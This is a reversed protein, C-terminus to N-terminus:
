REASICSDVASDESTHILRLLSSFGHGKKIKQKVECVYRGRSTEKSSNKIGTMWALKTERVNLGTQQGAMQALFVCKFILINYRRDSFNLPIIIPQTWHGIQYAEALM